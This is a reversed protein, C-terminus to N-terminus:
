NWFIGFSQEVIQLPLNDEPTVPSSASNVLATSFNLPFVSLNMVNNLMLVTAPSDNLISNQHVLTAM